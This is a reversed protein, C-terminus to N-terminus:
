NRKISKVADPNYIEKFSFDQASYLTDDVEAEYTGRTFYHKANDFGKRNDEVFM